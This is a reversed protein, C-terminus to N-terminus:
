VEAAPHPSGKRSERCRPTPDVAGVSVRAYRRSLLKGCGRLFQVGPGWKTRRLVVHDNRAPRAPGTACLQRAPSCTQGERPRNRVKSDSRDTGATKGHGRPGSARAKGSSEAMFRVKWGLLRRRALVWPKRVRMLVRAPRATRAARRPLPRSRRDAQGLGNTAAAGDALVCGRRTGAPLSALAVHWARCSPPRDARQQRHASCGLPHSRPAPQQCRRPAGDPKGGGARSVPRPPRRAFRRTSRRARAELLRATHGSSGRPAGRRPARRPQGAGM